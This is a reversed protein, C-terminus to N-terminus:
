PYKAREGCHVAPSNFRSYSAGLHVTPRVTRPVVCITYSLEAISGRMWNPWLWPPSRHRLLFEGGM